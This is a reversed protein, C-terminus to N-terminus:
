LVVARKQHKSVLAEVACRGCPHIGTLFALDKFALTDIVIPVTYAIRLNCIVSRLDCAASRQGRSVASPLDSSVAPQMDNGAPLFVALDTKTM